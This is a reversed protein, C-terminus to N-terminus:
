VPAKMDLQSAYFSHFDGRPLRREWRVTKPFSTNIPILRGLLRMALTLHNDSAITRMRGRARQSVEM